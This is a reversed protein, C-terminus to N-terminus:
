IEEDSNPNFIEQGSNPDFKLSVLEAIRARTLNTMCLAYNTTSISGKFTNRVWECNQERYRLWAKHSEFLYHFTAEEDDLIEADFRKAIASTDAWQAELTKEVEQYESLFCANMQSQNSFDGCNTIDESVLLFLSLLIM